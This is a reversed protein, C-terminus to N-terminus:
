PPPDSRPISPSRPSVQSISLGTQSMFVQKDEESPYPHDLHEHFWARLIDTVPKPLNGRRRKRPDAPDSLLGFSSNPSGHALSSYDSDSRYATPYHAYGPNDYAPQGYLLSPASSGTLAPSMPQDSDLGPFNRPDAGRLEPPFPTPRTSPPDDFGVGRLGLKRERPARLDRIPPLPSSPGRSPATSGAVKDEPRERDSRPRSLFEPADDAANSPPALLPGPLSRPRTQSEPAV